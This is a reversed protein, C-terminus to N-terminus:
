FAPSSGLDARGGRPSLAPVERCRRPLTETGCVASSASIQARARSSANMELPGKPGQIFTSETRPSLLALGTGPFRLAGELEASWCGFEPSARALLTAKLLTPTNAHPWPAGRAPNLGAKVLLGEGQNGSPLMPAQPALFGAARRNRGPNRPHKPPRATQGTSRGPEGTGRRRRGSRALQRAPLSPASGWLGEAGVRKKPFYGEALTVPCELRRICGGACAGLAAAAEGKQVVAKSSCRAGLLPRPSPSHSCPHISGRTQRSIGGDGGSCPGLSSCHRDRRQRALPNGEQGAAGATRGKVQRSLNRISLLLFLWGISPNPVCVAGKWMDEVPVLSPTVGARTVGVGRGM